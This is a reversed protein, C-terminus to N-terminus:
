KRSKPAPELASLRQEIRDLSRQMQEQSDKSEASGKHIFWTTFLVILLSQIVESQWNQLTWEGWYVVYGSEGFVTPTDGHSAQDAAYQWYGVITHAVFVIAFTIALAISLSYDHWFRARPLGQAAARTVETEASEQESGM